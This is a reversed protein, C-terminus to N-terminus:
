YDRFQVFKFTSTKNGTGDTTVIRETTSVICRYGLGNLRNVLRHTFSLEGMIHIATPGERTVKKEYEDVLLDLEDSNINPPIPPFPLDLIQQFIKIAIDTQIKPWTESPHNSLNLLM